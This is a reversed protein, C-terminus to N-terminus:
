YVPLEDSKTFVLQFSLDIRHISLWFFCRGLACGDKVLEYKPRSTRSNAELGRGNRAEHGTPKGSSDPGSPKCCSLATWFLTFLLGFLLYFEPYKKQM